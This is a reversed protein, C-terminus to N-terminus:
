RATGNLIQDLVAMRIYLGNGAQQFYVARVDNDVAPDIEDVRPLPHMIIAKKPIVKLAKKDITFGGKPVKKPDDIYEKQLRTWYIVDAGAFAELMNASEVYKTGAADLFRKVDDTIQLEPISVFTIQNGDFKSLIKSLSRITRGYRLDGGMVIKLNNLKTHANYITYADLLAQTPHEGGGDGANIVCTKSVKAARVAAGVENHRMVIADFGYQNLIKFTDEVTEGKVASSHELANETSVLGAGLKVVATEFSLRTRTSPQFFLTAIQRGKHLDALGRRSNTNADQKKFFDARKFIKKIQTPEFQDASLIHM